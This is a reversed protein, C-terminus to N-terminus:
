PARWLANDDMHMRFYLARKASIIAARLDHMATAKNGGFDSPARDMEAYAAVMQDVVRAMNPHEHRETQYTVQAEAPPPTVCGVALIFIGGAVIIRAIFKSIPHM